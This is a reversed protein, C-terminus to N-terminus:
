LKQTWAVCIRQRRIQLNDILRFITGTVSRWTTVHLDFTFILGLAPLQSGAGSISRVFRTREFSPLGIAHIAMAVLFHRSSLDRSM